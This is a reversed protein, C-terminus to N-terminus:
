RKKEHKKDRAKLIGLIMLGFGSLCLLIVYLLLPTTDGTKPIEPKDPSDPIHPTDPDSPKDPADPADPKNPEKPDDPDGPPPTTKTNTIIFKTEKNAISVQYLRPVNKEMVSWVGDSDTVDWSYTWHNEASLTIEEQMVSDKLVQVCISKPRDASDGNDDWLKVVTYQGPQTYQTKKPIAEVDYDYGNDTLSPLYVMFDFFSVVDTGSTVTIGKVMYLGTELDTFYVKGEQDTTQNQYANVKNALIYNRLTQATAHWDQASANHQINVPYSSFPELVKYNGNDLLEAIRYIQINLNPYVTGQNTYTLTLSCPQSINIAGAACELRITGLCLLLACLYCIFRKIM